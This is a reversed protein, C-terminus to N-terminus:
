FTEARALGHLERLSIQTSVDQLHVLGGKEVSFPKPIHVDVHM